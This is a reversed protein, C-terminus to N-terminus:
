AVEAFRPAARRFIALGGACLGFAGLAVAVSVGPAPLVGRLLIDRYAEIIPTM